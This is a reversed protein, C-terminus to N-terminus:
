RQPDRVFSSSHAGPRVQIKTRNLRHLIVTLLKTYNNYHTTLTLTHMGCEGKNSEFYAGRVLFKDNIKIFIPYFSPLKTFFYYNQVRKEHCLGSPLLNLM